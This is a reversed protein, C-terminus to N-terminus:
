EEAHIHFRGCGPDSEFDSQCNEWESSRCCGRACVISMCADRRDRVEVIEVAEPSVEVGV